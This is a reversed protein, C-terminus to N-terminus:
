KDFSSTPNRAALNTRCANMIAPKSRYKKALLPITMKTDNKDVCIGSLAGLGYPLIRSNVWGCVPTDKWTSVPGLLISRRTFEGTGVLGRLMKDICLPTLWRRQQVCESASRGRLLYYLSWKSYVTVVIGFSAVRLAESLVTEPDDVFELVSGVGVYDFQNDDFPLHEAKGLFFDARRGLLKRAEALMLPSSDLGTVDFGAHYFMETMMGTACGVELFRRGRRPWGSILDVILKMKSQLALEGAPSEVWQRYEDVINENAWITM